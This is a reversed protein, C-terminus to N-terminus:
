HRRQTSSHSPLIDYRKSEPPNFSVKEIRVRIQDKVNMWLKHENFEWYWRSGSWEAPSQMLSPPVIVQDFFDLTVVIGNKDMSKISGNLLEGVFPKFVIMRFKVTAFAAGDGAYV